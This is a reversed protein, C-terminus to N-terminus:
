KVHCAKMLDPRSPEPQRTKRTSVRSFGTPLFPTIVTVGEKNPTEQCLSRRVFFLHGSKQGSLNEQNRYKTVTAACNTETQTGVRGPDLHAIRPNPSSRVPYSFVTRPEFRHFPAHKPVRVHGDRAARSPGARPGVVEPTARGKAKMKDNEKGKRERSGV